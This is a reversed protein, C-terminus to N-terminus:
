GARLRLAEYDAGLITVLLGFPYWSIRSGAKEELFRIPAEATAHATASADDAARAAVADGAPGATPTAAALTGLHEVDPKTTQNSVWPLPVAPLM